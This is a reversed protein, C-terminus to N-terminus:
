PQCPDDDLLPKIRVFVRMQEEETVVRARGPAIRKLKELSRRNLVM